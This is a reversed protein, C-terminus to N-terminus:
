WDILAILEDLERLSQYKQKFASLESKAAALLRAYEDRNEVVLDLRKYVSGGRNPNVFVRVPQATQGGGPKVEQRVVINRIIGQAQIERYKEGAKVDDWEFLPHLVSLHDRAKNVVQAPTFSDGISELEHGVAEPDARHIGGIKWSYM